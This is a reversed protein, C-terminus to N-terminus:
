AERSFREAFSGPIQESLKSISLQVLLTIGGLRLPVTGNDTASVELLKQM